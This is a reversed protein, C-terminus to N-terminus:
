FLSVDPHVFSDGLSERRPRYKRRSSIEVSTLLVFNSPVVLLNHDFCTNLPMM